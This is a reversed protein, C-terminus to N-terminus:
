VLSVKWVFVNSVPYIGSLGKRIERGLKISYDSAFVDNVSKKGVVNGVLGPLANVLASRTSKPIHNNTTLLIKFKIKEGSKLEVDFVSELREKIKRSKRQVASDVLFLRSVETEAVDGRVESIRLVAKRTHERSGILDRMSLKIKRGILEKPEFATVEGLDKKGYIEPSQVKFWKKRRRRAKLASSKKKPKQAM